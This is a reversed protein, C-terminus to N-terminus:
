FGRGRSGEWEAKDGSVVLGEAKEAVWSAEEDAVDAFTFREREMVKRGIWEGDFDGSVPGHDEDASSFVM